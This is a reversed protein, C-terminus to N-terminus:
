CESITKSLTIICVKHWDGIHLWGPPMVTDGRRTCESHIWGVADAWESVKCPNKDNYTCMYALATGYKSLLATNSPLHRDGFGQCTSWFTDYAGKYFDSQILWTGSPCVTNTNGPWTTERKRPNKSTNRPPLNRLSETPVDGILEFTSNGAENVVALYSGDPLNAPVVIATALGALALVLSSLNSIRMIIIIIFHLASSISSHLQANICKNRTSALLRIYTSNTEKGLRILSDAIM